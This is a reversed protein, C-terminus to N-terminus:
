SCSDLGALLALDMRRHSVTPTATIVREAQESAAVVGGMELSKPDSILVGDAAAEVVVVVVVSAGKVVEGGFVNGAEAPTSIM